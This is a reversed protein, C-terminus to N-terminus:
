GFRAGTCASEIVVSFPMAVLRTETALVAPVTAATADAVVCGGRPPAVSARLVDSGSPGGRQLHM